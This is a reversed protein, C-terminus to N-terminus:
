TQLRSDTLHSSTGTFSVHNHDVSTCSNLIHKCVNFTSVFHRRFCLISCLPVFRGSLSVDPELCTLTDRWGDRPMSVPHQQSLISAVKQCFSPPWGYSLIVNSFFHCSQPSAERESRLQTTYLTPKVWLQASEGRRLKCCVRVMWRCVPPRPILM